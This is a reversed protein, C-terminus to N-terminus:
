ISVEFGGEEDVKVIRSATLKGPGKTNRSAKCNTARRPLFATLITPSKGSSPHSM